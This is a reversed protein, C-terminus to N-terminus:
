IENFGNDQNITLVDDPHICSLDVEQLKIQSNIRKDTILYVNNSGSTNGTSGGERTEVTIALNRDDDTDNFFYVEHDGVFLPFDLGSYAETKFIYFPKEDQDINNVGGAAHTKNQGEKTIISAGGKSSTNSKKGWQSNIVNNLAPDTPGQLNKLAFFQIGTYDVDSEIVASFRLRYAKNAKILKEGNDTIYAQPHSDIASGNITAGSSTSFKLCQLNKDSVISVGNDAAATFGPGGTGNTMYPLNNFQHTTFSINRGYANNFVISVDGNTMTFTSDQFLIDSAGATGVFGRMLGDKQAQGLPHIYSKDENNSLDPTFNYNQGVYFPSKTIQWGWDYFLGLKVSRDVDEPFTGNWAVKFMPAQTSDWTSSVFGDAASGYASATQRNLLTLWGLTTPVNPSGYVYSYSDGLVHNVGEFLRSYTGDSNIIRINKQVWQCVKGYSNFAITGKFNADFNNNGYHADNTLVPDSVAASAWGVQESQFHTVKNPQTADYNSNSPGNFGHMAQIRLAIYRDSYNLDMSKSENFTSSPYQSFITNTEGNTLVGASGFDTVQRLIAQRRSRFIVTRTDLEVEAVDNISNTYQNEAILSAILKQSGPGAPSVVKSVDSGNNEAGAGGLGVFQNYTYNYDDSSDPQFNTLTTSPEFLFFSENNLTAMSPIISAKAKQGVLSGETAPSKFMVKHEATAPNTNFYLIRNTPIQSSFPKVIAPTNSFNFSGTQTQPVTIDLLTSYEDPYFVQYDPHRFGIGYTSNFEEFSENIKIYVDHTGNAGGTTPWDSRKEVLVVSAYNNIPSLQTVTIDQTSTASTVSVEVGLDDSLYDEMTFNAVEVSFKVLRNTFSGISELSTFSPYDSGNGTYSLVQTVWSSTTATSAGIEVQRILVDYDAQDFLTLERIVTASSGLTDLSIDADAVESAWAGITFSENAIPAPQNEATIKIKRNGLEGGLTAQYEGVSSIFHPWENYAAITNDEKIWRFKPQADPFVSVHLFEFASANNDILVNYGAPGYVELENLKDQSIRIKNYASTNTTPNEPHKHRFRIRRYQSEGQIGNQMPEEQSRATMDIDIKKSYQGSNSDTNSSIAADIEYWGSPHYLPYEVDTGFPDQTVVFAGNNILANGITYNWGGLISSESEFSFM